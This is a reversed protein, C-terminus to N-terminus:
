VYIIPRDWLFMFSWASFFYCMFHHIYVNHQLFHSFFTCVCFLAYIIQFTYLSFNSIGANHLTKCIHVSFVPTWSQVCQLSHFILHNCLYPVLLYIAWFHLPFSASWLCCSSSGHFFLLSSPQGPSSRCPSGLYFSSTLDLALRICRSFLYTFIIVSINEEFKLFTFYGFPM